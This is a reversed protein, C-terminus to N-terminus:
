NQWRIKEGRLMGALGIPLLKKEGLALGGYKKIIDAGYLQLLWHEYLSRGQGAPVPDLKQVANQIDPTPEVIASEPPALLDIYAQHLHISTEERYRTYEHLSMFPEIDATPHVLGSMSTGDEYSQKANNYDAEELEFAEDLKVGPDKLSEKRALFLPILPNRVGLGGLEIPFYFFGDSIGEVGFRSALEIRLYEGVNDGPLNVDAFLGRQIKDFAEIVMDLHPRGLCNASEGFNNSIFRAVYVNWAQVWALVSKCAKLQQQLERTHTEVQQDDITWKGSSGLKLFGWRVEGQPLRNSLSTEQPVDSSGSISTAGTKEENLTLGMVSAFEQSTEWALVSAHSSGWFWIDDHLRYLNSGTSKNIAFDLCFLVAEGMADSLRHQIPVGCQRIQTQAGPGDQVFKVPAKLFKEFFKLWFEPVGFFHLVAITTAHPLSPGFWKFDSQLVTVSRNLRVNLLVETSILHLLSQKIAMPSKVDDNPSGKCYNDTTDNFAKPLQSLFYDSQYKERRANRVSRECGDEQGLFRQRNRRAQGDLLNDCSQKWAGSRFFTDFVTRFHTAWKMGIFHLLLAQLIEEDMFVRYKGNLARRVNVPIAEGWSWSDLADVQMNLVDAMEQLITSNNRFDALAKRKEESLLDTELMGTMCVQLASTDFNGLRFSRMGERLSDLPEKVMRKARSTSGFIGTLYTEIAAPSSTSGETFVISEWERRQDYMEKRGVHEFHDQSSSPTDSLPSEGASGLWEMVLRGFLSAHEYKRSPVDLAQEFATQWERLLTSPVSPDHRSQELYQRVNIKSINAPTDIDHVEFADLLIEVKGVQTSQSAAADLILQKITEYSQQQKSLANLKTTTIHYMSQTLATSTEMAHLHRTQTLVRIRNQSCLTNIDQKFSQQRLLSSVSASVRGHYRSLM